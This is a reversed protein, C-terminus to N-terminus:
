EPVEVAWSLIVENTLDSVVLEIKQGDLVPDHPLTLVSYWIEGQVAPPSIEFDVDVPIIWVFELRRNPDDVEHDAPPDTAVVTLRTDRDLRLPINRLDGEPHLIQPPPNEGPTYPPAVYLCGGLGAMWAAGLAGRRM